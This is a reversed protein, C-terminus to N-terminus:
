SSSCFKRARPRVKVFSSANTKRAFRAKMFKSMDSTSSSIATKPIPALPHSVATSDIAVVQIGGEVARSGVKRKRKSQREVEQNQAQFEAEQRTKEQEEQEALQELVNASLKQIRVRKEAQQQKNREDLQRRKAKQEAELQARAQRSKRKQEFVDSKGGEFSVQEPAENGSEDDSSSDEVVRRKM